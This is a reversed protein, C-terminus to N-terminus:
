INRNGQQHKNVSEDKESNRTQLERFHNGRCGVFDLLRGDILFPREVTLPYYSLVVRDLLFFPSENVQAALGTVFCSFVLFLGVEFWRGDLLGCASRRVTLCDYKRCACSAEFM